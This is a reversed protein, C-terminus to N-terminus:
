RKLLVVPAQSIDPTQTSDPMNRSIFMELCVAMEVENLSSPLELVLSGLVVEVLPYYGQEHAGACM